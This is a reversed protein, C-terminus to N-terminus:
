EDDHPNAIEEALLRDIDENSGFPAINLDDLSGSLDLTSVRQASANLQTPPLMADVWSAVIEEPTQGRQHAIQELRNRQSDSLPITISAM